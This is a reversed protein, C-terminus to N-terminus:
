GELRKVWGRILAREFVKARAMWRRDIRSPGQADRRAIDNSFVAFAVRHGSPTVIYGALGRVYDMTGTKAVIDIHRYDMPVSKAAINYDRLLDIFGGPLRPHHRAKGSQRGIAAVLLEVLRRPSVRSGTSLGSHNVLQFGPDGAPFGAFGAAWANMAAASEALSAPAAGESGSAALGVLEATLNTSYRLMSKLMPKLERSEHRAIVEPIEPAAEPQAGVLAPTLAMGNAQALSQFVEGAYLEPRRVPLWRAGKGRLGSPSMRWVEAGGELAHTFVPGGPYPEVTVRIGAVDPDSRDAKASVRLLKSSGRADWKLRVRNFNLNLGSIAPNYAADVPQTPDISALRPGPGGDVLFRGSVRSFGRDTAQMVLPLLDDSDLEPDGGGILILDGDLTDGTIAGTTAVRTEFRHTPGLRDLAYLTTPLKAVSAPAFAVEANHRDIVAGTDIDVAIWGAVGSHRM